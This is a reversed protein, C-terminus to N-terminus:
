KLVYVTAVIFTMDHTMRADNEVNLHISDRQISCLISKVCLGLQNAHIVIVSSM